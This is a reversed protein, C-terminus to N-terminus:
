CIERLVGVAWYVCAHLVARRIAVSVVRLHCYVSWVKGLGHRDSSDAALSFYM